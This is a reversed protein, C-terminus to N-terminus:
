FFGLLRTGSLQIKPTVGGGSKKVGKCIRDCRGNEMDWLDFIIGLRMEVTDM